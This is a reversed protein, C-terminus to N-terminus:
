EKCLTHACHGFMVSESAKTMPNRAWTSPRLVELVLAAGLVVWLRNPSMPRRIRHSTMSGSKFENAIGSVATLLKSPAHM